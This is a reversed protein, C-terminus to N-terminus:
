HNWISARTSFSNHLRRSSDFTARACRRKPASIIFPTYYSSWNPIQAIIRMALNRKTLTVGTIGGKWENKFTIPGAGNYRRGALENSWACTDERCPM